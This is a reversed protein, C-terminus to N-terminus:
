KRGRREREKARLWEVVTRPSARMHGGSTEIFPMGQNGWVRITRPAVCFLKALDQAQMLRTAAEGLEELIADYQDSV